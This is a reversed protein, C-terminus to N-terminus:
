YKKIFKRAKNASAFTCGKECVILDKKMKKLGSRSSLAGKKFAPAFTCGKKLSVFSKKFFI